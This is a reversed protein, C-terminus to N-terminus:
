EDHGQLAHPMPRLLKVKESQAKRCLHIWICTVAMKHTSSAKTVDPVPIPEKEPYLLDYLKMM